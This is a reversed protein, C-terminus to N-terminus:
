SQVAELVDELRRDHRWEAYRGLLEVSPPLSELVERGGIIQGQKQVISRESSPAFVGPLLTYERVVQLAEWKAGEQLIIKTRHFDVDEATIYVYDYGAKAAVMEFLHTGDLHHTAPLYVKDYAKLQRTAAEHGCLKLFVPAPITSVLEDYRYHTGRTAVCKGYLDILEAKGPILRLRLRELLHKALQQASYDFVSFSGRGSSL